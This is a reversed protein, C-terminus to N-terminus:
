TDYRLHFEPSGTLPWLVLFHHIMDSMFLASGVLLLANRAALKRWALAAAVLMALGYFGHHGRFGFTISAMFATETHAQLACGFRLICTVIEIAVTLALAWASLRLPTLSELKEKVASTLLM